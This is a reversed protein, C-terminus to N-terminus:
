PLVEVGFEELLKATEFLPLGMVGSYSDSIAAIFIAAIGQIAYAGARDQAENTALYARIEHKSINRFQVATTSLSVKMRDLETVEVAAVVQHTEGSLASLMEKAHAPSEPKGLIHPAVGVSM